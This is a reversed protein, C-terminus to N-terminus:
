ALLTKLDDLFDPYSVARCAPDDLPHDRGLVHNAMTWTMALRHDGYTRLLTTHAAATGGPAKATGRGTVFLTDGESYAECGLIRLGEEIAALRDSEKVRLEGVSEFVTTGEAGTALLALIPLEDILSPVEAAAVRTAKLVPRYRVTVDGVLEAGLSAATRPEVCVDAGMRQMVALFGTRTPNLLMDCITVDSQPVLAAGVLFFAASSPDGPLILVDRPATPRQGGRISVRLGDVQVDVGFAPLLLETHDRSKSPELVSTTGTAHLGALLVASKVQASAVPSRYEIAKLSSSGYVVLPLSDFNETTCVTRTDHSAEFRAGMTLLPLTVRNMPRRSLSADGTLLATLDYGALLGLLLRSTTGSNGCDLTFFPSATGPHRQRPGDPGFGRITGCLGTTSDGPGTTPDSCGTTSDGPGTTPDGRGTTSDGPGTTDRQMEVTAGLAAVADLSSRVDLSDLLGSIRSVGESMAAFLVVRHSLSKDSPV